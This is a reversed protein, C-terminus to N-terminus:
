SAAGRKVPLNARQWAMMGGTLSSAAYGAAILKRAATASRQGSACICAIDRDKPLEGIHRELEGLPILKVGAIHGERYEEPQRVDLLYPKKASTLKEQLESASLSPVPSGFLRAMLNM